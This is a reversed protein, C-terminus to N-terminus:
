IRPKNYRKHVVERMHEAAYKRQSCGCSTSTGKKLYTSKVEKLTHNECQCECLWKQNGVYRIVLWNGFRKGTLDEHRTCGCSRYLNNKLDYARVIKLTHKDCQCECLWCQNGKYGLVKWNNFQKGTLGIAKKSLKIFNSDLTEILPKAM